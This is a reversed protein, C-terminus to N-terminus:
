VMYRINTFRIYKRSPEMGNDTLLRVTFLVCTILNSFGCNMNVQVLGFREGRYHAYPERVQLVQLITARESPRIQNVPLYRRTLEVAVAGLPANTLGRVFRCM